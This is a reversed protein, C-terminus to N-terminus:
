TDVRFDAIAQQATKTGDIITEFLKQADDKERKFLGVISKLGMAAAMWPNVFALMAATGLGAMTKGLKSSSETMDAFITVAMMASKGALKIQKASMSWAEASKAGAEASGQGAKELDNAAAQLDASGQKTLQVAQEVSKQYAAQDGTIRVVMEDIVEPM